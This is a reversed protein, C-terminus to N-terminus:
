EPLIMIYPLEDRGLDDFRNGAPIDVEGDPTCHRVVDRRYVYLKAHGNKHRGVREKAEQLSINCSWGFLTKAYPAVGSYLFESNSYVAVRAGDSDELCKKAQHDVWLDLLRHRDDLVGGDLISM